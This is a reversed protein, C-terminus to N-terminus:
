KKIGSLDLPTIYPHLTTKRLVDDSEPESDSDSDSDRPRVKSARNANNMLDAATEAEEAEESHGRSEVDEDAFLKHGVNRSRDSPPPTVHEEPAPAPRVQLPEEKKEPKSTKPDAVESQQADEDAVVRPGPGLPLPVTPPTSAGTPKKSAPHTSTRRAAAYAPVGNSVYSSAATKSASVRAKTSANAAAATTRKPVYSARQAPVNGSVRARQASLDRSQNTGNANTQLNRYYASYTTHAPPRYVRRRPVSRARVVEQEIRRQEARQDRKEQLVAADNYLREWFPMSERSVDAPRSPPPAVTKARRKAAANTASSKKLTSRAVPAPAASHSLAGRAPTAAQKQQQAVPPPPPVVRKPTKVKSARVPRSPPVRSAGTSGTRGTGAATATAPLNATSTRGARSARPVTSARHKRLYSARRQMLPGSRHYEELERHIRAKLEEISTDQATDEDDVGDELNPVRGGERKIEQIQRGRASASHEEDDKKLKSLRRTSSHHTSVTRARTASGFATRYPSETEAKANFVSYGQHYSTTMATGGHPPPVPPHAAPSRQYEPSVANATAPKQPTSRYSHYAHGNRPGDAHAASSVAGPDALGSSEADDGYLLHQGRNLVEEIRNLSERIEDLNEENASSNRAAPAAAIRASM